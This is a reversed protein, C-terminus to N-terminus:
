NELEEDTLKSLHREAGTCSLYGDLIKVFAILDTQILKTVVQGNEIAKYTRSPFMFPIIESHKRIVMYACMQNNQDPKYELTLTTNNSSTLTAEIHTETDKGTIIPMAVAYFYAAGGHNISTSLFTKTDYQSRGNNDTSKYPNFSFTLNTKFYSLKLCSFGPSYINRVFTNASPKNNNYM